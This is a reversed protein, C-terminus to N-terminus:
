KAYGPTLNEFTLAVARDACRVPSYPTKRFAKPVITLLFFLVRSRNSYVKITIPWDKSDTLREWDFFVGNISM